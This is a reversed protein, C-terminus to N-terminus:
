TSMKELEKELLFMFVWDRGGFTSGVVFCSIKWDFLGHNAICRDKFNEIGL